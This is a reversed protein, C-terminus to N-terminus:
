KAPWGAPDSPTGNPYRVCTRHPVLQYKASAEALPVLKVQDPQLTDVFWAKGDRITEAWQHVGAHKAGGLEFQVAGAVLRVPHGTALLLSGWLV